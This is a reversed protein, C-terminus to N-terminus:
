EVYGYVCADSNCLSNIGNQTISRLYINLASANCHVHFLFM